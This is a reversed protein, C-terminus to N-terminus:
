FDTTKSMNVVDLCCRKLMRCRILFAIEREGNCLGDVFEDSDVQFLKSQIGEPLSRQLPQNHKYYVTYTAIGHMNEGNLWVEQAKDNLHSSKLENTVIVVAKKFAHRTRRKLLEEISANLLQM